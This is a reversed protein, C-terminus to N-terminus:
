EASKPTIKLPYTADLGCIGSNETKLTKLAILHMANKIGSLCIENGKM